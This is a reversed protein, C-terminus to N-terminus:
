KHYNQNKLIVIAQMMVSEADFHAMECVEYFSQNKQNYNYSILYNYDIDGIKNILSGQGFMWNFASNKFSKKRKNNMAHSSLDILHQIVVARWLNVEDTIKQDVELAIIYKYKNM